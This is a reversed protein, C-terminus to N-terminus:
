KLLEKIDKEFADKPRFGIYMKVIKGDKGLVFTTPISRVPGYSGSVKGDDILVPYNMGEEKAFSAADDRSVLAVGIMAFGKAGYGKELEIFDPVLVEYGFIQKPIQAMRAGSDSEDNQALSAFDFFREQGPGRQAVASEEGPVLCLSIRRRRGGLPPRQESHGEGPGVRGM